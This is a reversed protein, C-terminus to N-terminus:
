SYCIRFVFIHLIRIQLIYPRIFREYAYSDRFVSSERYNLYSVKTIKKVKLNKSVLLSVCNKSHQSNWRVGGRAAWRTSGVPSAEDLNSFWSAEKLNLDWSTRLRVLGFSLIYVVFFSLIFFNRGCNYLMASSTSM